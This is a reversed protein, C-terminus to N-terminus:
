DDFGGHLITRTINAAQTLDCIIDEELDLLVRQVGPVTAAAHLSSVTINRGLKRSEALYADVGVSAADLVVQKDPGLFTFITITIARDLIEASQVTVLDGMPRIRNGAVPTLVAAVADVTGDPATGDGTRSLVSILVEGPAPSTASADLVDPHASKAHYVYALEPGAVSFREAAIVIRQRYDDDEEYTPDVGQDPDGPDLVLREVGFLVGLHDLNSGSAYAVLLQLARENFQQRLLLERYAGLQLVKVVPDSEVTANFDPLLDPATIAALWEAYIAEFGLVEVITPAPLRSLDIASSSASVDPVTGHRRGGARAAM